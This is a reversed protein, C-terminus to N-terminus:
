PSLAFFVAKKGRAPCLVEDVQINLRTKDQKVFGDFVTAQGVFRQQNGEKLATFQAQAQHSESSGSADVVDALGTFYVEIDANLRAASLTVDEDLWWLFAYSWYDPSDGSFMGPM